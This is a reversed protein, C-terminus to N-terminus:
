EEERDPAKRPLYKNYWYDNMKKREQATM